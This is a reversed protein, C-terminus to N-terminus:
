RNTDLFEKAIAIVHERLEKPEVVRVASGWGLIWNSITEYSNVVMTLRVGSETEEVEQTESWVGHRVQDAVDISFDLVVRIEEGGLWYNFSNRFVKDPHYDNKRVFTKDFVEISQINELLFQKYIGDSHAILRWDRFTPIIDYPEVERRVLNGDSIRKYQLLLPKRNEIAHVLTVLTTLFADKMKQTLLSISKPYSIAAGSLSIYLSIITSLLEPDLPEMLMIKNKRSHVAVGLSRLERLDRQIAAEEVGFRLTLDAVSYHANKEIVMALIEIPRRSKASIM